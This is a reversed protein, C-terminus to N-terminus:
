DSPLDNIYITINEDWKETVIPNHVLISDIRNTTFALKSLKWTYFFGSEMSEYNISYDHTFELVDAVSDILIVLETTSNINLPLSITSLNEANIWMSDMGSSYVSILPSVSANSSYKIAAGLRPQPPTDFIERCTVLSVLIALLFFVKKMKEIM